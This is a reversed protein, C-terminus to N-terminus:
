FRLTFFVSLILLAISAIYTKASSFCGFENTILTFRVDDPFRCNRDNCAVNGPVRPGEVSVFLPRCNVIFDHGDCPNSLDIDFTNANVRQCVVSDEINTNNM